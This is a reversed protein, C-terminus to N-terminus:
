QRNVTRRRIARLLESLVLADATGSTSVALTRLRLLRARAVRLENLTWHRLFGTQKKVAFPSMGETADALFGREQADKLGALERFFREAVTTMLVAYGNEGEFPTVAAVLAKADRAGLADTVDWLVPEVGAGPASIARVDAVTVKKAGSELYDRLKAVESALSRTDTGVRQVFFEVAGPAFSFGAEAALDNARVQANREREWPKGGGLTAIEAVGKLTKAFVSTMLLKPGSLIFHQNDDLPTRALKAAFKELAAKVDEATPKGGAHPLFAVNKWWTVKRPELFPPTSFSADAARLDALQRDANTSEISDIVELGVGDGITKKATEAVLYDDEGIIVHLGAM